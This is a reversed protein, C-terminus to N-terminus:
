FLLGVRLMTRRYVRDIIRTQPGGWWRQDGVDYRAKQLQVGWELTFHCDKRSAIRLGLVAQAFAGGSAEEIFGSRTSPIGYGLSLAYYPSTARNLFYGRAHAYIPYVIEVNTPSYTDVGIGLGAGFWRNWQYIGQAHLTLGLVDEYGDVSIGRSMFGLQVAGFFGTERWSYPIYKRDTFLQRSRSIQRWPITVTKGSALIMQLNGNDEISDLVGKLKIGTVLKVEYDPVFGVSDTQANNIGTFILLSIVILAIRMTM